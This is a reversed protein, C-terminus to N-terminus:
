QLFSKGFYETTIIFEILCTHAINEAHQCTAWYNVDVM